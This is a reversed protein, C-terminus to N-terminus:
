EDGYVVIETRQSSPPMGDLPEIYGGVASGPQQQEARQKREILCFDHGATEDPQLVWVRQRMPSLVLSIAAHGHPAVEDVPNATVWVFSRLRLLDELEVPFM